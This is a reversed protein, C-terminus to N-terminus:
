QGAELTAELAYHTARDDLDPTQSPAGALATLYLHDPMNTETPTTCDDFGCPTLTIGERDPNVTATLSPPIMDEPTSTATPIVPTGPTHSARDDDDRPAIDTDMVAACGAFAFLLFLLILAALRM